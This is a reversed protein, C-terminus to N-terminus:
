RKARKKLAIREGRRIILVEIGLKNLLHETKKRKKWSYFSSAFSDQKTSKVRSGTKPEPQRLKEVKVEVMQHSSKVFAELLETTPSRPAPRWDKVEDEKIPAFIESYKRKTKNM